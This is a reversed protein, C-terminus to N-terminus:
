PKQSAERDSPHMGERFPHMASSAAAHRQWARAQSPAPPSPLPAWLTPQRLPAAPAPAPRGRSTPEPNSFDNEHFTQKASTTRTALRCPRASLGADRQSTASGWRGRYYQQQCDQRAQKPKDSGTGRPLAACQYTAMPLGQQRHVFSCDPLAAIFSGAGEELARRPASTSLTRLCQMARHVQPSPEDAPATKGRRTLIDCINPRSCDRDTRLHPFLINVRQNSPM